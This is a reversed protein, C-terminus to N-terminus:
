RGKSFHKRTDLRVEEAVGAQESCSLAEKDGILWGSGMPPWRPNM